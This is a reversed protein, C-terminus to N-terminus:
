FYYNVLFTEFSLYEFTFSGFWVVCTFFTYNSILSLYHHLVQKVKDKDAEVRDKVKM